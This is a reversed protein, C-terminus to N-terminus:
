RAAVPETRGRCRDDIARVQRSMTYADRAAPMQAVGSRLCATVPDGPSAASAREFASKAEAARGLRTHLLAIANLSDVDVSNRATAQEYAALAAEPDDLDLNVAALNRWLRAEDPALQVAKKAANRADDYQRLHVYGVRLEDWATANEPEKRTWETAYLVMVNFNGADRLEQVKQALPVSPAPKVAAKDATPRPAPAAAPAKRTQAAVPTAATEEGLSSILVAGAIGAPVILAAAVVALKYRQWFSPAPLMSANDEGQTQAAARKAAERRKREQMRLAVARAPIYAAAAAEANGENQKLYRDWLPTDLQGEAYERLAQAIFADASSGSVAPAVPLPPVPARKPFAREVPKIDISHSDLAAEAAAVVDQAPTTTTSPQQTPPSAAPEEESGPADMPVLELSLRSKEM